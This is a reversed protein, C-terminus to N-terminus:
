LHQASGASAARGGPETSPLCPASDRSATRRCGGRAPLALLERRQGSVFPVGLAAEIGAALDSTPLNTGVQLVADVGGEAVARAAATLRAESQRPYARPNEIRLAESAVVTFGKGTFFEAARAAGDPMFPSLMGIREAGLAHLAAVCAPTSATVPVGAADAIQRMLADGAAEGGPLAETSLGLLVRDPEFTTLLDLAPGVAHPMAAMMRDFGADDTIRIAPVLFRVTQQTVGPPCLRAIEPEFSTNVSPVLTGVVLRQGLRDRTEEDGSATTAM